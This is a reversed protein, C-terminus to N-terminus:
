NREKAEQQEKQLERAQEVKKPSYFIAGSDDTTALQHFLPKHRQRKKQKNQLARQYGKIRSKLIINMAALSQITNSLEKVRYDFVNIIVEKLKKKIRM